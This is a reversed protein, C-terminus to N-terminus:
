FILLLSCFFTILLYFWAGTLHASSLGESVGPSDQESNSLEAAAETSAANESQHASLLFNPYFPFYAIFCLFYCDTPVNHSQGRTLVERSLPSWLGGGQPIHPFEKKDSQFLWEKFDERFELVPSFLFLLLLSCLFHGTLSFQFEEMLCFGPLKQKVIESGQLNCQGYFDGLKSCEMWNLPQLDM